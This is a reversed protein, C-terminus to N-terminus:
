YLVGRGSRHEAWALQLPRVPTVRMGHPEERWIEPNRTMPGQDSLAMESFLEIRHGTPVIFSLRRGVGPQEGAPVEEVKTGHEKIRRAQVNGDGDNREKRQQGEYKHERAETEAIKGSKIQVGHDKAIEPQITERVQIVVM